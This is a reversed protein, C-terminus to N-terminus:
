SKWEQETGDLEVATEYASREKPAYRGHANSM